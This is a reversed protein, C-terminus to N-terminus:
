QGWPTWFFAELAADLAARNDDTPDDAMRHAAELAAAIPQPVHWRVDGAGTVPGEVAALELELTTVSGVSSTLQVARCMRSLDVGDVAVRSKAGHQGIHLEFSREAM